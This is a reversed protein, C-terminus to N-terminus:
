TRPRRADVGHVDLAADVLRHGDGDLLDLLARLVDLLLVLDGLDGGDGGVVVVLDAVEDGVGHFLDALVPDDRDLFGLAHLGVELHHFAHLEVAAEDGRIEDGVAVGLHRHELVRVDEDVVLLDGAHLVHQGQQLLDRLRALRHEDDGFLHFALGQGGQDHVVEAAGQGRAGHLGGAEAVAALGHQLVDGDEGAALDDGLLEPQLQLVGLDGHEARAM